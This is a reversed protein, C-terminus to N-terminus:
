IQEPGRQRLEQQDVRGDKLYVYSTNGSGWDVRQLQGRATYNRTLTTSGNPYTVRSVEGSPYRWYTTQVRGPSGTINNGELAGVKLMKRQGRFCPEKVSEGMGVQDFILKGVIPLQIAKGVRYLRLMRVFPYGAILALV